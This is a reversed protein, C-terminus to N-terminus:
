RQIASCRRSSRPAVGCQMSWESASQPAQRAPVRGVEALLNPGAAPVAGRTPPTRSRPRSARSWSTTTGTTGSTTLTASGTVPAVARLTKSAASRHGLEPDVLGYEDGQDTEFVWRHYGEWGFAAQIIDHLQHLTSGSPVDLRRWIPPRAGRLAIKM